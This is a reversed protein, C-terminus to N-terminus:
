YSAKKFMSKVGDLDLYNEVYAKRLLNEPLLYDYKDFRNNPGSPVFPLLEEETIGSIRDKLTQVFIEAPVESVVHIAPSKNCRLGQIKLEENLLYQLIFNLTTLKRTGIWPHIVFSDSTETTYLKSIDYCGATKRASALAAKASDDLYIYEEKGLLISQMKRVIRDHVCAGSRPFWLYKSHKKSPVVYIKKAKADTDTVRWNRGALTIDTNIEPFYDVDGLIRQNYIVSYGKPDNFVGYYQYNNAIREGKLGPILTGQETKEILDTKLMHRLLLHYDQQAVSGFPPLSLIYKALEKATCEKRMLFSLTQHLLVSYPCAKLSFPEVWKEELYLQIIAINQLLEWPIDDFPNNGENKNTTIFGMVAPSGRRGTRGLRQVFSSCNGPSGLQMVRELYGLDIGLELTKTAVATAPLDSSRLSEEAEERLMASISGHHVYFADPENREEAIMRLSAATKESESRSNTFVLCKRGKVQSYLYRSRRKEISALEKDDVNCPIEEHYFALLLKRGGGYSSIIQYDLPSGAKLWQGADEINQITASLGIRRINRKVLRDLHNLQCQLQIGRDTGMFAHIEDIIIFKLNKFIREVDVCHNIILAELSEPTIQLIGEPHLLVRNKETQSRDGHWAYLPINAEKILLNLREFQDNILAKLPGIYVAGISDKPYNNYLETLVPFFAAETKGSATGSSILIHSDSHLVANIAQEQIDRLESWHNRYIYEQIFPALQDFASTM